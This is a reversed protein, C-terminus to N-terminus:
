CHTRTCPMVVFNYNNSAIKSLDVADCIFQYGLPKKKSYCFNYGERISGEWITNHSFNCNDISGAISYIPLIGMWTFIHSPGGIELGCKGSLFQKLIKTSKARPTLLRRLITKFVVKVGQQKINKILVKFLDLM